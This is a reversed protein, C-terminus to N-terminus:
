PKVVVYPRMMENDEHDIIHCHWVYGPGVTPDFAYASGDQAAYRVLLITVEGPNMRVTDKWGLENPAPGKPTGHLYVRYDPVNVTPNMFPPEEGGNAAIWDELYKDVNFRQRSVLQFQTLHLHIPHSDGTTDFVVWMETTGQTPKESIPAEWMQGDLTVMLPGEPGEVEYLTHIRVYSPDPAALTPFTGILTPNLPAPLAAVLDTGAAFGGQGHVTSKVTFQVIQGVTRPDPAAGAPFPAKATNMVRVTSGVPANSFDVLLDVREGPAFTFTTMAQPSVLYGGDSGIVWFPLNAGGGTPVFRLTYFRANSGDLFRFRYWGQTVDLNPWVLGNVMITNGFFEPQWYPHIDPNVGETPFWLSGDENFIRDQLVLPQEYMGSPLVAAAPDDPDRLLYFGALGSMVNLRTMGLAHDHYWLTTPQQTDPYDYIAQNGAAGPLSSYGTGQLGNYTFWAEPGGDSTSPVEGGHLHPVLPTPAQADAYGPPCATFPTEPDAMGTPNAWHITPDVCFMSPVAIDNEWTVQNPIGRTAEFTPGPSNLVFGLGEGTLADKAEGGYGWVPTEPFGAPLVQQTKTEMKVLYDYRVVNGQGDLVPTPVYVPPPGTIQNVWKPITTPDLTGPPVERGDAAAVPSAAFVSVLAAGAM